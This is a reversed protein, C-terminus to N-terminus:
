SIPDCSDCTIRLGLRTVGYDGHGVLYSSSTASCTAYERKFGQNETKDMQTRNSMIIGATLLLSHVLHRASYARELQIALLQIVRNHMKDSTTFRRHSAKQQRAISFGYHRILTCEIQTNRDCYLVGSCSAAEAPCTSSHATKSSRPKESSAPFLPCAHCPNSPLRNTNWLFRTTLSCM